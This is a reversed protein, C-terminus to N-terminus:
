CLISFIEFCSGIDLCLVFGWLVTGIECYSYYSWRPILSVMRLIWCFYLQGPIVLSTSLKMWFPFIRWFAFVKLLFRSLEKTIVSVGRVGRNSRILRLCEKPGMYFSRALWVQIFWVRCLIRYCVICVTQYWMKMSYHQVDKWCFLIVSIFSWEFVWGSQSFSRVLISWLNLVFVKVTLVSLFKVFYIDLHDSIVLEDVENM